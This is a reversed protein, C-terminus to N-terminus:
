GEEQFDIDEENEEQNERLRESMVFIETGESKESGSLATVIRHIISPKKQPEPEKYEQHAQFTERRLLDKTSFRIMGCLYVVKDPDATLQYFADLYQGDHLHVPESSNREEFRRGVELFLQRARQRLPSEMIHRLQNHLKLGKPLLM